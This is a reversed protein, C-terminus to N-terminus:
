PIRRAPDVLVDVSQSWQEVSGVGRPLARVAHDTISDELRTVVDDRISTYRRDWFPQVPDDIGPLGM